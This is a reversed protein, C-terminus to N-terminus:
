KHYPWAAKLRSGHATLWVSDAGHQQRLLSSRHATLWFRYEIVQRQSMAGDAVCPQSRLERSVAAQSSTEPEDSM